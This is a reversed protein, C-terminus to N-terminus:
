PHASKGGFRAAHEMEGPDPDPPGALLCDLVACDALLFSRVYDVGGHHRVAGPRRLVDLWGRVALLKRGVAPPAPALGAVLENLRPEIAAALDPDSLRNQRLVEIMEQVIAPGDPSMKM